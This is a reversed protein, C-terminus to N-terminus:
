PGLRRCAIRLLRIRNFQFLAAAMKLYRVYRTVVEEGAAAVAEQRRATLRKCWVRCTREYDEPDNRLRVLEFLGASAQEIQELTPLESEPFISTLIFNGEPSTAAKEREVHGFAITQLSLRGGPKLWRHCCTFFSRYAAVKDADNWEARAFHEFAGISIVADYPETPIHDGWSELRVAIGPHGLRAVWDAQEASMTLGLANQVGEALVLHELLSGWGCGVDLVRAAGRAHAWKAHYELKRRQAVELMSDRDGKKWLACSYTLSSDLWLRYFDNGVDYHHQIAEPSASAAMTKQM